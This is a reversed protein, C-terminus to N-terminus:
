VVMAPLPLRRALVLRPLSLRHVLQMRVSAMLVLLCLELPLSQSAFAIQV